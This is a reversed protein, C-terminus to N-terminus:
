GHSNDGRARGLAEALAARSERFGLDRVMSRTWLGLGLAALLNLTAALMAALWPPWGLLGAVALALAAGLYLWISIALITLGIACILLLLASQLALRADTAFLEASGRLVGAITRGLDLLSDGHGPDARGHQAPERDAEPDDRM